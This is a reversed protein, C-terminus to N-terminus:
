KESVKSKKRKEERIEIQEELGKVKEMATTSAAIKALLEERESM